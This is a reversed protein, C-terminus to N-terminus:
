INIYFGPYNWEVQQLRTQNSVSLWVNLRRRRKRMLENVVNFQQQAQM